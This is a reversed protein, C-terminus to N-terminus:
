CQEPINGDEADQIQVSIMLNSSRKESHQLDDNQPVTLFGRGDPAFPGWHRDGEDDCVALPLDSGIVLRQSM